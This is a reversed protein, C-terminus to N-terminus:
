LRKMRINRISASTQYTAIGLPCSLDIDGYRLSVKRGKIEADVVKEDDIWATIKEPTVQLRIKYWRNDDFSMFKTTDNESADMGDLSSLGVLAGGWGGVILTCFNTEVPFTLGCFFDTGQRRMAELSIEYNTQPLRAKNTWTIGTLENGM